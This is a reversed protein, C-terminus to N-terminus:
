RVLRFGRMLEECPSKGLDQAVCTLVWTEQLRAPSRMVALLTAVSTGSNREIGEGKAIMLERSADREREFDGLEMLVSEKAEKATEEIDLRGEKLFVILAGDKGHGIFFPGPGDRRGFSSRSAM